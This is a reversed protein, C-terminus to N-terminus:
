LLYKGNKQCIISDLAKLFTDFTISICYPKFHGAIYLLMCSKSQHGIFKQKQFKNYMRLEFINLYKWQLLFETKAVFESKRIGIEKCDM